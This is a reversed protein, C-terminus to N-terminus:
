DAPVEPQDLQDAMGSDNDEVTTITLLSEDALLDATAADENDTVIASRQTPASNVLAKM